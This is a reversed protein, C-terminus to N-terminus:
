ETVEEDLLSRLKELGYRYRSQITNISTGQLEAIERFKMGAKLHLVVVERQEYPLVNLKDELRQSEESHVVLHDPRMSESVVQEAEDLGVTHQGRAKSMNRARNLVCVALYHKLSGNLEFSGIGEAFSVFVDHVADEAASSDSLLATALTLLYDKYKEYIRCAAQECGRKFRWVLLKDELM